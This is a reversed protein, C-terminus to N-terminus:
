LNVHCSIVGKSGSFFLLSCPLTDATYVVCLFLADYSHWGFALAAASPRHLEM